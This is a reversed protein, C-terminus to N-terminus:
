QLNSVLVEELSEQTIPKPLYGNFGAELIKRKDGTLAYATEAIIKIDPLIKRIEKLADYGDMVPMKIDLMILDINRNKKCINVAEQGNVAPIVNLGMREMMKKLVLLNYKHDEVLLVTKQIIKKAQTDTIM